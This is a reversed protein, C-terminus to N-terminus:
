RQAKRRPPERKTPPNGDQGSMDALVQQYLPVLAPNQAALEGLQAIAARKMGPGIGRYIANVLRQVPASNLMLNGAVTGSILPLQGIMSGGGMIGGLAALRGPTGSDPLTNPLVEKADDALGQLMAEGRATQGSRRGGMNSSASRLQAPTFVGRAAGESSAAREIRKLGAWALNARKVADAVDPAAQRSLLDFMADRAGAVVARAEPSGAVAAERSLEALSADLDKWTRGDIVGNGRAFARDIRGRIQREVNGALSEDLIDATGALAANVAQDLQPDRALQGVSSLATDYVEGIAESAHNVVEYGKLRPPVTKGIPELAENAAARNFSEMSRRRASRVGLPLSQAADELFRIREGVVPIVDEMIQGNTLLVGRNALRRAPSQPASARAKAASRTLQNAGAQLVAGAGAGIGAGILADRGRNEGSSAGAAYAGGTVGGAAAVRPVSRGGMRSIPNAIAGAMELATASVPNTSRYSDLRDREVALVAREAERGSYGAGRSLGFAAALNNARTEMGAGFADLEDSWGFGGGQSFARVQQPTSQSRRRADQLARRQTPSGVADLIGSRTAPGAYRDTNAPVPRESIGLREMIAAQAQQPDPATVEFRRGNVTIEYKPM